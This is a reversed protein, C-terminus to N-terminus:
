CGSRDKTVETMPWKPGLSRFSQTLDTKKRDNRDIFILYSLASATSRRKNQRLIGIAANKFNISAMRSVVFLVSTGRGRDNTRHALGM